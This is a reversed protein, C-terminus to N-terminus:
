SATNPSRPGVRFFWVDEPPEQGIREGLEPQKALVASVFDEPAVDLAREAKAPYVEEGIKIRVRPDRVVNATWQKTSGNMAPIILSGELLVCLTTVSHPDEPRTEVAITFHDNCGSWDAPYPREVGSLHKGSIMYMPDTRFVYLAGLVIVAVGLGAGIWQLIKMTKGKSGTAKSHRCALM